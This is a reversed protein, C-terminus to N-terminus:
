ARGADFFADLAALSEPEDLLPTHGRNPVNARQLDPKEEAMRDFTEVSLIDSTEGRIALVPIGRLARFVPWLDPTEGRGAERVAEGIMPDADLRPVGDVETYSRRAHARWQEDTLGPLAFGYIARVQDVAEDWSSVPANRGVYRAIRERGEVQVEPGIDNLAVGAVRAPHLSAIGMSLLGGLSTGLLAFREVGAVQLLLLLDDVYVAPQYNRWHPDHDSRGRGRLDACLVRRHRALRPAVIEFDRSNRTLGPLCLVPPLDGGPGAYERYFLQLGDRSRYRREICPAHTM